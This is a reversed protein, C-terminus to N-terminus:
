QFYHFVGLLGNTDSPDTATITESLRFGGYFSDNSGLHYAPERGDILNDFTWGEFQETYDKGDTQDPNQHYGFEVSSTLDDSQPRDGVTRSADPSAVGNYKWFSAYLKIRNNTDRFSNPNLDEGDEPIHSLRILGDQYDVYIQQDDAGSRITVDDFDRIPNSVDPLGSGDAPFLVMGFGVDDDTNGRRILDDSSRDARSPDELPSILNDARIWDLYESNVLADQNTDFPSTPNSILDGITYLQDVQGGVDHDEIETEFGYLASLILEEDPSLYTSSEVAFVRGRYALFDGPSFYSSGTGNSVTLKVRAGTPGREGKYNSALSYSNQTPYSITNDEIQYVPWERPYVTLYTRESGLGDGTPIPVLEVPNPEIVQWIYEGSDVTFEHNNGSITITTGSATEIDYTGYSEPSGGTANSLVLVHDAPTLHDVDVGKTDFTKSGTIDGSTGESVVDAGFYLLQQTLQRHRRPHNTPTGQAQTNQAYLAEDSLNGVVRMDGYHGFVGNVEELVPNPRVSSQFAEARAPIDEDTAAAGRLGKRIAQDELDSM